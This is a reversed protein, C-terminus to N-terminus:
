SRVPRVAAIASEIEPMLDSVEVPWFEPRSPDETSAPATRQPEFHRTSELRLPMERWVHEFLQAWIEAMADLSHYRVVSERGAKGLRVRLEPVRILAALVAVLNEPTANVIPLAFIRDAREAPDIYTLVPKGLSLGELAFVGFAGIMFQDAIIDADAYIALAERRPIKEVLRFEADFGNASLREIAEVLVDTGKVHRHNPAHVLRPRDLHQAPEASPRLEETDIGFCKFLLEYRPLFGAVARDPAIVLDAFDTWLAIRESVVSRQAALDWDPYDKQLREVWGYRTPRGDVHNVDNGHPFAIIRIGLAKISRVALRNQRRAETRFFHSDFHAVWVDGHRMLDAMASWHREDWALDTSELDRDFDTSTTIEYRAPRAHLVVSRAPYGALRASAVLDRTWVMPSPGYWIRPKLRLARRTLRVTVGIAAAVVVRVLWIGKRLKRTARTMM